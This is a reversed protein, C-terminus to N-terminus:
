IARWNRNYDQKHAIINAGANVFIGEGNLARSMPSALFLATQAVETVEGRRHIMQTRSWYKDLEGEVFLELAADGMKSISLGPLICNARIGDAAHKHAISKTLGLLGGKTAAYASVANAGFLAYDSAIHVIVGSGRKKMHPMLQTMIKYASVLNVDFMGDIAEDTIEDAFVRTSSGVCNLWIDPVRDDFTKAVREIDADNTLDACIYSSNHEDVDAIDVVMVEAGHSEFLDVCASGIRGAGGTILAYKGNLLRDNM